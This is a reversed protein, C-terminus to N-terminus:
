APDHGARGADSIINVHDAERAAIRLIGKGSGGLMVPPHPQQVPKPM